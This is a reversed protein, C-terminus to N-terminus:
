VSRGVTLYLSTTGSGLHGKYGWHETGCGTTSGARTAEDQQGM